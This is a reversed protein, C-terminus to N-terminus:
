LNSPILLLQNVTLLDNTLNNLRKLEEMTTNYTRSISYLTDNPQVYYNIYESTNPILLTQGISLVNSPLGNYDIIERVTTGYKRAISYLTDNATVIHRIVNPNINPTDDIDNNINCQAPLTLTNGPMLITTQLNNMNIIEEISINCQRSIKWLTDGNQITYLYKNSDETPAQFPILLQQGITLGTTTLQNFNIIDNVSIGYENAIKYLTDGRKVTYVSYNEPLTQEPITSSPIILVQGVSLINSTLNNASKLENVTIGYLSAISYLSDGRQVIYTNPNPFPTTGPFTYPINIYNAVAKVVAEGYDLLNNQLKSLDRSNDIFGYEILVPETNGTLRHIFYYDKSPDEPLRRQYATRKRQGADGIANLIGEALTNDNRLAYVVEAGEGGGANIHNSLVIVDDSNGFANLIRNVRENRNLTEDEDRTIYVPVGLENLRNYIYKSVELAFDKEYINGNIAGPDTGGHGPDIVVKYDNNNM